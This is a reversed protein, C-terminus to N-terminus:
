KKFRIGIFSDPAGTSFCFNIHTLFMEEMDALQEDQYNEDDELNIEDVDVCEEVNATNLLLVDGNFADNIFGIGERKMEECLENFKLALKKQEETLKLRKDM